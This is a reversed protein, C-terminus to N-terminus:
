LRKNDLLIKAMETTGNIGTALHLPTEGSKNKANVDAKHALLFLVAEKRHKEVALHLPPNGDRDKTLVLDPNDQVLVKIRACDGAIAADFIDYKAKNAALLDIVDQHAHEAAYRLPTNGFRDTGVVLDPQEKLLAKVKELDGVSAADYIDYKAGRAALLAVIDRHDARAALRLTNGDIDAKNALLLEVIDKHGAMAARDLPTVQGLDGVNVDAKNVLLLEVVDKHGAAAAYHLLTAGVPDRQFVLQPHAKLQAKVTELDGNKIVDHIDGSARTTTPTAKGTSSTGPASSPM